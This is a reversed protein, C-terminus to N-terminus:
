LWSFYYHKTIDSPQKMGKIADTTKIAIELGRPRIVNSLYDM